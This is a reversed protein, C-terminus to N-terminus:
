SVPFGIAALAEAETVCTPIMQHIAMLELVQNVQDQMGYMALTAQRMKLSKAATVLMRIGMSSIFDVQSMDVIANTANPVLSALFRTEIRDVGPTDLRGELAVKVHKDGLPIIELTM